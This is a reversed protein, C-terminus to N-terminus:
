FSIKRTHIIEDISKIYIEPQYGTMESVKFIIKSISEVTDLSNTTALDLTLALEIIHFILLATEPNRNLLHHYISIFKVRFGIDTLKEDAFFRGLQLM